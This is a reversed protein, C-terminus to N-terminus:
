ESTAGLALVSIAEAKQTWTRSTEGNMLAVEGAARFTFDEVPSFSHDAFADFVWVRLFDGNRDEQDRYVAYLGGQTDTTRYFAAAMGQWARDGALLDANEDRWVLDAGLALYIDD